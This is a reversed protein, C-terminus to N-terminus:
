TTAGPEWYHFETHRDDNKMQERHEDARDEAEDRSPQELAFTCDPNKCEVRTTRRPKPAGELGIM